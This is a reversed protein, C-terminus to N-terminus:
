INILMQKCASAYMGCADGVHEAQVVWGDKSRTSRYSKRFWKYKKGAADCMQSKTAKRNGTLCEKADCVPIYSLHIDMFKSLCVVITRATALADAASKSQSFGAYEECILQQSNYQNVIVILADVIDRTRRSKDDMDGLRRKKKDNTTKIVGHARMKKDKGFVVWGTNTLSQDLSLVTREVAHDMGNIKRSLVEGRNRKLDEWGM